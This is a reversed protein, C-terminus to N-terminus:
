QTPTEHFHETDTDTYLFLSFPLPCQLIKLSLPGDKGDYPPYRLSSRTKISLQYLDQSMSTSRHLSVELM